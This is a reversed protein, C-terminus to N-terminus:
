GPWPLWYTPIVNSKDLRYLHTPSVQSSASRVIVSTSSPSDNDENTSRSFRVSSCFFSDSCLSLCVSYVWGAINAASKAKYRRILSCSRSGSMTAPCESPSYAARITAPIRSKSLASRATAARPVSIPATSTGSQPIM